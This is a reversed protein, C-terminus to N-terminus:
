TLMCASRECCRGFDFLRWWAQKAVDTLNWDIDHHDFVQGRCQKEDVVVCLDDIVFDTEFMAFGM